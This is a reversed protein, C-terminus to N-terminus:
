QHVPFLVALVRAALGVLMVARSGVLAVMQEVAEVVMVQRLVVQRPEPVLLPMIFTPIFVEEVVVPRAAMQPMTHCWGLQALAAMDAVLGPLQLLHLAVAVPAQLQVQAGLGGAGVTVSYDQVTVSVSGAAVQGGGGGGGVSGGGGGGGGVILYEVSRTGCSVTFTFSSSFTHITYGGSSSTTGGSAVFDHVSSSADNCDAASVSTM